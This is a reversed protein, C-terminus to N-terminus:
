YIPSTKYIHIATWGVENRQSAGGSISSCSRELRSGGAGCAHSQRRRCRRAATANSPELVGGEGSGHPKTEEPLPSSHSRQLLPTWARGDGTQKASFGHNFTNNASKNHSFFMIEESFFYSPYTSSCPLHAVPANSPM